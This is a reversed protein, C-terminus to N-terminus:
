TLSRKRNCMWMGMWLARLSFRSRRGEGEVVGSVVSNWWSRVDQLESTKNKPELVIALFDLWACLWWIRLGPWYFGLARRPSILLGELRRRALPAGPLNVLLVRVDGAPVVRSSLTKGSNTYRICLAGLKEWGLLQHQQCYGAHSCPM